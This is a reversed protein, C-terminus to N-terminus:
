LEDHFLQNANSAVYEKHTMPRKEKTRNLSIDMSDVREKELKWAEQFDFGKSVVADLEFSIKGAKGQKFTDVWHIATGTEDYDKTRKNYKGITKSVSRLLEDIDNTPHKLYKKYLTWDQLNILYLLYDAQIVPDVVMPKVAGILRMVIMTQTKDVKPLFVGPTDYLYIEPDENVKIISSTARTVGPQGGTRAVKKSNGLGVNRLTNVLTSKGVNPMGAVLMRLGLPPRPNMENFKHKAIEILYQADRKSRCDVFMFPEDGHWKRLLETDVRSLDKKSYLIVKKGKSFPRDLLVNRSSVPARADRVEFVVDIQPAIQTMKNLAKQHHGKFDSLRINYEPFTLRPIFKAAASSATM